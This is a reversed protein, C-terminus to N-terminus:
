LTAVSPDSRFLNRHHRFNLNPTREPGRTRTFPAPKDPRASAVRGRIIAVRMERASSWGVSMGIYRCWGELILVVKEFVVM